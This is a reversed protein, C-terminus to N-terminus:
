IDTDSDIDDNATDDSSCSNIGAEKQILILERNKGIMIKVVMNRQMPPFM